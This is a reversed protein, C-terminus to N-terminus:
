PSTSSRGKEAALVAGKQGRAPIPRPDCARHYFPRRHAGRELGVTGEHGGMCRFVRKQTREEGRRGCVRPM